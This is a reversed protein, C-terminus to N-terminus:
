KILYSNRVKGVMRMIMVEEISLFCFDLIRKDVRRLYSEVGGEKNGDLINFEYFM